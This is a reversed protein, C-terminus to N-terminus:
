QGRVVRTTTSDLTYNAMASIYGTIEYTYIGPTAVAYDLVEPNALTAGSAVTKGDPDILYLDLDFLGDWALQARINTVDSGVDFQITHVELNEASVGMTGTYTLTTDEFTVDLPYAQGDVLVGELYSRDNVARLELLHDGDTLRTFATAHGFTLTDNWFSIRGMNTGDIYVDALGGQPGRPHILKVGEGVFRMFMSGGRRADVQQYAGDTARSDNQSKWRGNYMLLESNSGIANWTGNSSWATDGALFAARNGVTTQALEIAARVDIYGDGVEHFAYGPMPEASQRLVDEVQDPSLAPNVELLLAVTGAVFPTAMSTGSITHYRLTYEPHNPDVVPGLAGVATNPARTSTILSGPATIDPHKYFDGAVGRSSFDALQKGSTGAAVNIVWPAIAYQNLTDEDPGSNSAAFSVVMGRTYAEYSAQNIPNNPDFEAGDGGGWSNTIVDISYRDQNAIAYDFGLLAYLISLGEGAGLGVLNAEPAIGAHYFPRREDAASAAGNGGVTGAVHTGHGSTTDSNPQGEIFASVGGALGLDGLIKVNQVTKSGLALDPHTADVGSDLVAVTSGAGKFGYNDHVFHGGTIEGSTYNSYELPANYYISAVSDWQQVAAIQSESLIAAAMPLTQLRIVDVGLKNALSNVDDIDNFTVIVEHPGYEQAMKEQLVPDMVAAFAPLACLSLLTLALVHKVSKM